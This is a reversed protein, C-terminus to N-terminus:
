RSSSVRPLLQRRRSLKIWWLMSVSVQKEATQVKGINICDKNKNTNVLLTYCGKSHLQTGTWEMRFNGAQSHNPNTNPLLGQETGDGKVETNWPWALCFEQRDLLPVSAVMYVVHPLPCFTSMDCCCPCSGPESAEGASMDKM